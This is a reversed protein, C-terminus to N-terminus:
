ALIYKATTAVNAHAMRERIEDVSTGLEALRTAFGRRLSHFGCPTVDLRECIRTFQTPLYARRTESQAIEAQTPWLYGDMKVVTDEAAGGHRRSAVAKTMNKLLEGAADPLLVELRRRTKDTYVTVRGPVEFSVWRMQAIDGLRFGLDWAFRIAFHWFDSAECYRGFRDPLRQATHELLREIEHPTFLKQTRPELEEHSMEHRRIRVLSTPDGAVYGHRVCVAFYSQLAALRLKRTPVAGDANVFADVQDDTVLNIPQNALRSKDLFRVIDSRYQHITRSTRGLTAVWAHWTVLAKDGTVKGGSSLRQVAEATLLKAKAAFEIDALRSEKALRSATDRCSTRLNIPRSGTLHAYYSGTRSNLKLKM